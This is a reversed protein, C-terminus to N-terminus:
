DIVIEVSDGVSKLEIDVNGESRTELKRLRGYQLDVTELVSPSVSRVSFTTTLAGYM